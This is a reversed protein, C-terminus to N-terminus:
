TVFTEQMNVIDKSDVMNGNDVMDMSKEMGVIEVKSVQDVKDIRFHRSAVQLLWWTSDVMYMNDMMDM